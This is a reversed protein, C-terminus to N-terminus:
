YGHSALAPSTVNGGSTFFSDFSDLRAIDPRTQRHQVVFDSQRLHSGELLLANDTCTQNESASFPGTSSSLAPKGGLCAAQLGTLPVFGGPQWDKLSCPGKSLQQIQHHSLPSIQPLVLHPGNVLM